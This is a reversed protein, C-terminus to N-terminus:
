CGTLFVQHESAFKLIFSHTGAHQCIPVTGVFVAPAHQYKFLVRFGSTPGGRSFVLLLTTQIRASRESSAIGKTPEFLPIVILEFGARVLATRSKLHSPHREPM